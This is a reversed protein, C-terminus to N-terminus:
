KKEAIVSGEFLRLKANTNAYAHDYFARAEEPTDFEYALLTVLDSLRVLVIWKM